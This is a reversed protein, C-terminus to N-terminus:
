GNLRVAVQSYPLLRHCQSFAAIKERTTEGFIFEITQRSLNATRRCRYGGIDGFAIATLSSTLIDLEEAHCLSGQLLKFGMDQKRLPDSQAGSLGTSWDKVLTFRYPFHQM